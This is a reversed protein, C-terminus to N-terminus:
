IIENIYRIMKTNQNNERRVRIIKNPILELFLYQILESLKIRDTAVTLVKIM